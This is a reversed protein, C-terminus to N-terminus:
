AIMGSQVHEQVHNGNQNRKFRVSVALVALAPHAPLRYRMSGVTLAAGLTILLAPTILLWRARAPIKGCILAFLALGVLPITYLAAVIVNFRSSGYQDSLPIPSWTRGIKVGALEISRLPNARAWSKARDALARNREVENMAPSRLDPFDEIFRQNSAGTADPNFGDYLTFGDNTSTFIWSGLMVRNRVAWPLMVIVTILVLWIALPRRLRRASEPAVSIASAVGAFLALPLATTRVMTSLALLSIGAWWLLQRKRSRIFRTPPDGWVLAAIGWTVM